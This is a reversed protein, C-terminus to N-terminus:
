ERAVEQSIVVQGRMQISGSWRQAVVMLSDGPPRQAQSGGPQRKAPQQRSSARAVAQDSGPRRKIPQRKAVVQQAGPLPWSAASVASVKLLPREDLKKLAMELQQAQLRQQQLYM